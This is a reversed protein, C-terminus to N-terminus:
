LPRGPINLREGAVVRNWLESPMRYLLALEFSWVNGGPDAVCLGSGIIRGLIWGDRRIAEEVMEAGSNFIPIKM